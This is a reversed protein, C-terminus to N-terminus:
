WDRRVVAGSEHSPDEVGEDDDVFGATQDVLAVEGCDKIFEGRVVVEDKGACEM